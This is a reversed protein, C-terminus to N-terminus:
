ASRGAIVMEEFMKVAKDREESAETTWAWKWNNEAVDAMEKLRDADPTTTDLVQFRTDILEYVRGNERSVRM